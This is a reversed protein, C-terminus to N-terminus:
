KFLRLAAQLQADNEHDLKFLNVNKYADDLDVEVDPAIGVGEYNASHPPTYMASSIRLASGDDFPVITQVTGKGYTTTGVVFAKGYDRLAAVFLEAASATNGNALVVFMGPFANKDSSIVQETGDKYQIRVIPGEPLLTDLIETISTLEGGGNNRVDLIYGHVVDSTGQTLAALFQEPTKDNFDLLRIHAIPRALGDVEITEYTVVQEEVKRRTVTVDFVEEYAEGRAVTITVDTGIEGRIRKVAEDYGIETIKVGGVGIIVDNPLLGAELAPSDPMVNLIEIMYTQPDFTVSVGIGAFEGSYGEQLSAYEEASHYSGYKDGSYAAFGVAAGEVLDDINLEGVYYNTYLWALAYIKESVREVIEDAPLKQVIEGPTEPEDSSDTYETPVEGVTQDRVFSDGFIVTLQFTIACAIIILLVSLWVSIKKTM